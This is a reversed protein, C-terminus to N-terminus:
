KTAKVPTKAPTTTNTTKVPATTNTTKVPSSSVPTTKVPSVPSKYAAMSGYKFAKGRSGLLILDSNQDKQYATSPEPTIEFDKGDLFTSREKKGTKLDITYLTLVSKKPKKFMKLRDQDSKLLMNKPNDNYVIYFKDSTLQAFYSMYDLAKTSTFLLSWRGTSNHYVYGGFSQWAFKQNKPIRNASLLQGKDSLNICVLDLFLHTEGASNGSQSYFYMYIEGVGIIGGDDKTYLNMKGFAAPAEGEKGKAAQKESLFQDKFSKDFENVKKEVIEKSKRDIKLYFCGDLSLHRRYSFNATSGATAGKKSTTGKDDGKSYYGVLVFDGQKNITFTTNFIASSIPLGLETLDLKEEWKEFDKKADYTTFVTKDDYSKIFYISGDLDITMGVVRYSKTESKDTAEEKETLKKLDSGFLIFRERYKEQKKYYAEHDLLIKKNDKSKFVSFTGRRRKKEVPVSLIDIDKKVISGDSLSYSNAYIVSLDNKKDYYSLFVVFSNDTLVMGEYVQKKPIEVEKQYERKKSSKDFKEIVLKSKVLAMTYFSNGLEGLIVPTYNKKESFKQGWTIKQSFVVSSFIFSFSLLALKLKINKTLNM